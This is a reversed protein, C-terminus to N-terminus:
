QSFGAQKRSRRLLYLEDLLAQERRQQQIRYEAFRAERLSQLAERAQRRERYRQAQEAIQQQMREAAQKLKALQGELSDEILRLFQLEAGTLSEARLRKANGSQLKLMAARTEDLQCQLAARRAHLAQLRLREREELNQRLRLVAALSFHFPM